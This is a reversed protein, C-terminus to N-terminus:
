AEHGVEEEDVAGEVGVAGRGGDSLGGAEQLGEALGRSVSGFFRNGNDVIEEPSFPEPADARAPAAFAVAGTAALTLLERRTMKRM